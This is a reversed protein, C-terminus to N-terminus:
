TKPIGSEGLDWFLGTMIQLGERAIPALLHEDPGHQRCGGYSHPVWITALGLTDTFVENPLSGGVNPLVMPATGVTAAISAAAWRAWPDDPDLRTAMMPTGSETVVIGHIGQAELHRSITGPLDSVDTGVVFRLQCHARAAPPIANLPAAPNGTTFALVELANWGFVREAPSLGPEGWGEALTEGEADREIPIGALARRVSDPIAPPRLRPVRIAGRADVLAAVANAIITGPNPLLGGWNGSHHSGERLALALDFNIVGRTGLAIMPRARDLRPGDSAILVDAALLDRHAACIADLGPSGIEESTEVLFAMNFGLRGGRAAMVQEIAAINISHQGKNDATGRGYWRDGEVTIRWPDLGSRWQAPEGLVVDGHGYCLVGPLGDGEQRRAILAPADPAAPNPVVHLAFGLRALTPGIEQELYAALPARDAAQSETRFGIRRDLDARYGGEDFYRAAGAIARDRSM